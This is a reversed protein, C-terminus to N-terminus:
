LIGKTLLTNKMDTLMGNTINIIKFNGEIFENPMRKCIKVRSFGKLGIIDNYTDILLKLQHTKLKNCFLVRWVIRSEKDIVFIEM